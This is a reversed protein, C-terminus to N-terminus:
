NVWKFSKVYDDGNINGNIEAVFKRYAKDSIEIGPIKNIKDLFSSDKSLDVGPIISFITNVSLNGIPGLMSSVKRSLIGFVDMEAVSTSFNYVGSIFLSLDKGETTIELNEAIGDKIAMSGYIDSFEGTKLPAIVDAINNISLSTIGGKILNGAKLLYELSGLKPMRGNKVNFITDGNLTQMCKEFSKGNCSLSIQGTMDGYIQNQLDFVAWTIDNADINDAHLSLKIDNNKLNYSYKGGLTGQAINFLFNNIEFLHQKNLSTEAEFNTAHINRLSINEAKLVLNDAVISNIDFFGFNDQIQTNEAEALKLKEAIQNLNMEKTYVYANEIHYPKTLKNKLIAKAEIDNGFIEGKSYIELKKDKFLFEINKMTTDLFPINTEVIHFDGLIKPNSLRGNMKLDSSFQGQKINPKGFIINFIKADTPNSTKISLDKFEIDDKLFNLGGKVKLMNLRTQKGNQSDILKDYLFEKIKVNKNNQVRSDMNIVIANELDGVTAGYYYISSDKSMDVKANINYDNPSGNFVANYIIDGKIKLPYIRNKNIFKDIFDQKPKSNIYIEFFKNGTIDKIEGDALVPMNGALINIKSLRINNNRVSLRGNLIDVPIGKPIYNFSIGTLDCDTNLKGKNFWLNAKLAGKKFEYDKLINNTKEPLIREGFLQNLVKVDALDLKINGNPKIENSFPKLIQMNVIVNNKEDNVDVILNKIYLKDNDLTINGSKFKLFDFKDCKLIDANFNLKGYELKDLSGNYKARVSIPPLYNKGRYAPELLINTNFRPIIVAFEGIKNKLKANVSLPSDGALAKIDANVSTGNVFAEANVNTIEMGNSRFINNKIKISGKAFVNKNFEFDEINKVAGYIKIKLDTLGSISDVRPIISKIDDIMSSTKVANYLNQTPQNVTETDFGFNGNLDCVGNIKFDKGNVLGKSTKFSANTDNFNLVADANTLKLDPMRIFNASTDYFNMKGWVHPNNRSGKVTIDINGTGYIDLIPVPGIIFNLIEHLPNVVEQASHLSVNKTSKVTLDAYKINYLEQGGKVWVKQTGGAPVFVDYNIHRGTFTLKVTAGNTTDPIPKILIGNDIFVNGTLDPEPFRGKISINGIVDGYFKYKKLKYCDFEEVKFPPLLKIFDEIKSKNVIIKLDATPMTKGLYDKIKGNVIVHLNESDIELNNLVLLNQRIGLVAKAIIKKPFIMSYDSNRMIVATQNLETIIEDRNATINVLGKLGTIEDPLFNKFFKGVPEINLGSVEINFLTKSIDNNKPLYLNAFIKSSTKEVTIDSEINLSIYRNKCNFSFNKGKYAIPNPAQPSIFKLEFGGVSISDLRIQSNEQNRFFNKNLVMGKKLEAFLFVKEASVTNFHVKGLILPLIRLKCSINKTDIVNDSTKNKIKLDDASFKIVPFLYTKIRPKIVTIEYRSNHSFNKCLITVANQLVLPLIGLWFIYFSLLAITYKNVFKSM